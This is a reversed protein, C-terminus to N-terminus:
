WDRTIRAAPQWYDVCSLLSVWFLGLSKGYDFLMKAQDYTLEHTKVWDYNPKGSDDEADFLQFKVLGAGAAKVAKIMARAMKLDEWNTCCEAIIM